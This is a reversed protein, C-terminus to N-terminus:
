RRPLLLPKGRDARLENEDTLKPLRFLYKTVDGHRPCVGNPCHFWCRGVAVGDGTRERIPCNNEFM